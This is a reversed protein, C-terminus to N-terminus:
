PYPNSVHGSDSFAIKAHHRSVVPCTFFAKGPESKRKDNDSGPRRGIHVVPEEAKRFILGHSPETASKEIYLAVGTWALSHIASLRCLPVTREGTVPRQSSSLFPPSPLARTALKTGLYQICDDESM